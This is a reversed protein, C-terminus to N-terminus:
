EFFEMYHSLFEFSQNDTEYFKCSSYPYEIPSNALMWGKQVPNNHIYDLKQEIVKRSPLFKTLSDKQWFQYKRDSAEVAFHALVQPHNKKLDYYIKQGTYKLFDRQIDKLLYPPLIKWLLHIHNPMIVFAYVKIKEREVLFSLSDILLQKYIKPVLLKKWQYITATFFGIYSHEPLEEIDKIM